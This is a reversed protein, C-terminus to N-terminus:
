RRDVFGLTRRIARALARPDRWAHSSQRLRPQNKTRAPFNRKGPHCDWPSPRGDFRATPGQRSVGIRWPGLLVAPLKRHVDIQRELEEFRRPEAAVPTRSATGGGAARCHISRPGRVRGVQRVRQLHRLLPLVMSDRPDFFRRDVVARALGRGPSGRGFSAPSPRLVVVVTEWATAPRAGGSVHTPNTRFRVFHAALRV